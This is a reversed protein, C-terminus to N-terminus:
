RSVVLWMNNDNFAFAVSRAMSATYRYTQSRRNDLVVAGSATEVLLVAHDEDGGTGRIMLVRMNSAPVGLERLLLYKAIAFDECDGGVTLLEIPTEWYDGRGWRQQDSVYDARNVFQNVAAIADGLSLSRFRDIASSWVAGQAGVAQNQYRGFMQSWQPLSSLAGTVAEVGLVADAAPSGVAANAPAMQVAYTVIVAASLYKLLRGVAQRNSM